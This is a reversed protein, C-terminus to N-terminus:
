RAVGTMAEYAMRHTECCSPGEVVELGTPYPDHAAAPVSGVYDTVAPPIPRRTTGVGDLMDLRSIREDTLMEAASLPAPVAFVAGLPDPRGQSLMEIEQSRRALSLGLFAERIAMDTDAGAAATAAAQLHLGALDLIVAWDEQQETTESRDRM